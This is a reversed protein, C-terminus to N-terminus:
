FMLCSTLFTLILTRADHMHTTKCPTHLFSMEKDRDPERFNQYPTCSLYKKINLTIMYVGSFM